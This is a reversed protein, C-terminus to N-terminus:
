LSGPREDDILPIAVMWGREDDIFSPWRRGLGHALTRAVLSRPPSRGPQTTPVENTDSFGFDNRVGENVVARQHSIQVGQSPQVINEALSM